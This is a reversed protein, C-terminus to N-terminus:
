GDAMSQYILTLSCREDREEGNDRMGGEGEARLPRPRAQGKRLRCMNRRRKELYFVSTLKQIQTEGENRTEEVSDDENKRFFHINVTFEDPKNRRSVDPDPNRGM